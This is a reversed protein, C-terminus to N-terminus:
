PDESTGASVRNWWPELKNGIWVTLLFFAVGGILDIVYHYRLYVTGLILLAALATVIWKSRLRYAFALYTCVLTLQTHGSPFVDRQVADIPNVQGAQISEGANIIARFFPTFLLGPLERDLDSFNHLTFRPGVAPLLFYGLYSLYFGLVILFAAHDFEVIPYRRYIEVGVLIFILYYSFYASQLIETLVPNAFRYLWQTPNVGLMWHDAAIFLQDYDAPNIRHIMQYIEKFVFLVLLYCYWRHLGTVFGSKRTEALYAISFIAAVVVTNILVLEKWVPVRACFVINLLTMLVLFATTIFDVPSLHSLSRQIRAPLAM